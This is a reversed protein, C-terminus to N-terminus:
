GAAGIKFTAIVDEDNIFFEPDSGFELVIEHGAFSSFIVGQGVEIRMPRCTGDDLHKGEGIGIVEGYQTKKDETVVEISGVMKDQEIRRVHIRDGFAKIDTIKM